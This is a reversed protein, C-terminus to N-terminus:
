SSFEQRRVVHRPHCRQQRYRDQALRRRPLSRLRQGPEPRDMQERRRHLCRTQDQFRPNAHSREYVRYLPRGSFGHRYRPSGRGLGHSHRGRYRSYVDTGPGLLLRLLYGSQVPETDDILVAPDRQTGFPTLDSVIVDNSNRLGDGWTLGGDVSWSFNILTHLAFRSDEWVMYTKGSPGFAVMPRSQLSGADNNIVNVNEGFPPDAHLTGSCVLIMSLFMIKVYESRNEMTARFSLNWM